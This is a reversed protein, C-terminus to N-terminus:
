EILTVQREARFRAWLIRAVESQYGVGESWSPKWNPDDELDRRTKLVQDWVARRRSAAFRNFEIEDEAKKMRRLENPVSLAPLTFTRRLTNRTTIERLRRATGASYNPIAESTAGMSVSAAGREAEVSKAIPVLGAATLASASGLLSRRSIISDTLKPINTQAM